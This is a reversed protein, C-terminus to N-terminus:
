KPPAGEAQDANADIRVRLVRAGDTESERVPFADGIAERL